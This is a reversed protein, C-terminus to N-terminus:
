DNISVYMLYSVFFSLSVGDILIWFVPNINNLFDPFYLISIIILLPLKYIFRKSLKKKFGIIIGKITFFFLGILAFYCIVLSLFYPNSFTYDSYIYSFNVINFSGLIDIVIFSSWIIVCIFILLYLYLCDRESLRTDTDGNGDSKNLIVKEQIPNTFLAVCVVLVIGLFNIINWGFRSLNPTYLEPWYLFIFTVFSTFLLIYYFLNNNLNYKYGIWFGKSIFYFLIIFCIFIIITFYFDPFSFRHQFAYSSTKLHFVEVTLAIFFIIATVVTFNIFKKEIETYRQKQGKEYSETLNEKLYKGYENLFINEESSIRVSLETSFKDLDYLFSDENSLVEHKQYFLKIYESIGEMHNVFDNLIIKFESNKKALNLLPTYLRINEKELHQTLIPKIHIVMKHKKVTSSCIKIASFADMVARHEDKFEHILRSIELTDKHSNMMKVIEEKNKERNIRTDDLVASNKRLFFFYFYFFFFVSGSAEIISWSVNGLLYIRFPIYAISYFLTLYLIIRIKIKSHKDIMRKLIKFNFYVLIVTSIFTAIWPLSIISHPYLFFLMSYNGIIIRILHTLMYFLSGLSAISTSILIWKYEQKSFFIVNRGTNLAKGTALFKSFGHKYIYLMIILLFTGFIHIFHWGLGTLPLIYNDPFYMIMYVLNFVIFPLFIYFSRKIDKMSGAWLGKTNFYLLGLFCCFIIRSSCYVPNKYSYIYHKSIYAIDNIHRNVESNLLLRLSLFLFGAIIVFSLIFIIGTETKSFIIVKAGNENKNNITNKSTGQMFIRNDIHESPKMRKSLLLLVALIYICWLFNLVYWLEIPIGYYYFPYYIVILIISILLSLIHFSIKEKMRIGVIIRKIIYLAIGILSFFLICLFIFQIDEFVSVYNKFISLTRPSTPIGVVFTTLSLILYSIIALISLIRVFLKGNKYRM